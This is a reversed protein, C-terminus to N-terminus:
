RGHGSATSSRTMRGLCYTRIGTAAVPWADVGRISLVAVRGFPDMAAIFPSRRRLHLAGAPGSFPEYSVVTWMRARAHSM